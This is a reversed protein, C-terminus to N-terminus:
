KEVTKIKVCRKESTDIMLNVAALKKSVEQVLKRFRDRKRRNFGKKPGRKIGRMGKIPYKPTEKANNKYKLVEEIINDRYSPKEKRRILYKILKIEQTDRKFPLLIEGFYIQKNDAIRLGLYADPNDEDDNALEANTTKPHKDIQSPLAVSSPSEAGKEVNPLLKEWMSNVDRNFLVTLSLIIARNNRLKDIDTAATDNALSGYAYEIDSFSIFEEQCLVFLDEFLRSKGNARILNGFGDDIERRIHASTSNNEEYTHLLNLTTQISKTYGLAPTGRGVIKGNKYHEIYDALWKSLAERDRCSVNIGITEQSTALVERWRYYHKRELPYIEIDLCHLDRVSQLMIRTQSFSYRSLFYKTRQAPFWLCVLIILWEFDTLYYQIYERFNPKMSKLRKTDNM